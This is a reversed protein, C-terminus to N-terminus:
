CVPVQGGFRVRAAKRQLSVSMKMKPCGSRWPVVSAAAISSSQRALLDSTTGHGRDSAASALAAPMQLQILALLM